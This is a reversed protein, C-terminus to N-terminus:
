SSFYSLRFPVFLLPFTHKLYSPRPLFDEQYHSVQTIFYPPANWLLSPSSALPLSFCSPPFHAGATALPWVMPLGSLDQSSIRSLWLYDMDSDNPYNWGYHCSILCLSEPPKENESSCDPTPFLETTHWVIKLLSNLSRGPSREREREGMRSSCPKRFDMGGQRWLSSEELSFEPSGMLDYFKCLM